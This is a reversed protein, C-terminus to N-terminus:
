LILAQVAAINDDVYKQVSERYEVSTNGDTDGFVNNVGSIATLEIPNALTIQTPTALQYSIYHGTVAATFADTDAYDPAYVAIKNYGWHTTRGKTIINSAVKGYVDNVSSPKFIECSIPPIEGLPLDTTIINPATAYFHNNASFTWSLSGLDIKDSYTSEGSGGICDIEGGFVTFPLSVTKTTIVQNDGDTQTVIVTDTGSIPLPNSPSPTGSAQKPKIEVKCSLLPKTITTTFSSIPGSATAVVILDDLNDKITNLKTKIDGLLQTLAALIKQLLITIM